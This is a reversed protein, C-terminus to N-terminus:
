RQWFEFLLLTLHINLLLQCNVEKTANQHKAWLYKLRNSVTKYQCQYTLHFKFSAEIKLKVGYELFVKEKKNQYFQIQYTYM